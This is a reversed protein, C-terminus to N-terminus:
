EFISSDHELSGSKMHFTYPHSSLTFHYPVYSFALLIHILPCWLTLQQAMRPFTESLAWSLFALLVPGSATVVNDGCCQSLDLTLRETNKKVSMGFAQLVVDILRIRFSLWEQFKLDIDNM